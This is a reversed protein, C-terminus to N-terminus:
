KLCRLNSTKWDIAVEAIEERAICMTALLRRRSVFSSYESCQLISTQWDIALKAIEERVICLWALLRRCSALTSPGPNQFSPASINEPWHSDLNITKVNEPWCGDASCKTQTNEPKGSQKKKVLTWRCSVLASHRGLTKPDPLQATLDQAPRARPPM